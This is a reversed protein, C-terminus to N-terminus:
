AKYMILTIIYNWLMAYDYRIVIYLMVYCQMVYNIVHCLMIYCQMVDCMSLIMIMVRTPAVLCADDYM